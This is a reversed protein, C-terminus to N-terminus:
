SKKDNYELLYNQVLPQFHILVQLCSHTNRALASNLVCLNQTIYIKCDKLTKYNITM